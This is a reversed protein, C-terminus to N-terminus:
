KQNDGIKQIYTMGLGIMIVFLAIFVVTYGPDIVMQLGTSMDSFIGSITYAGLKEDLGLRLRGTIEDDFWTDFVGMKANGPVSEVGRFIYAGKEAPIIRNTETRVEYRSGAMDTLTVFNEASYSSQYLKVNGVKLPRNVEIAFEEVVTTGDKTVSVTSIWDKPVGNEYTLFEFSLLSMTYGGPITATDGESM